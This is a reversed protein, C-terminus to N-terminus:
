SHPYPEGACTRYHQGTTPVTCLEIVDGVAALAQQGAYGENVFGLYRGAPTYILWGRKPNGDDGNPASVKVAYPRGAPATEHRIVTLSGLTPYERYDCEWRSVFEEAASRRHFFSTERRLDRGDITHEHTLVHAAIEPACRVIADVIISVVISHTPYHFVHLEHSATAQPPAITAPETM